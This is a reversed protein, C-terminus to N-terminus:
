SPNTDNRVPDIMQWWWDYDTMMHLWIYYNAMIWWWRNLVNKIEYDIDNGDHDMM